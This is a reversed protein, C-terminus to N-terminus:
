DVFLSINIFGITLRNRLIKEKLISEAIILIIIFFAIIIGFIPHQIFKEM